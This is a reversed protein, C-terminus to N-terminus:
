QVGPLFQQPLTQLPGKGGAGREGGGESKM